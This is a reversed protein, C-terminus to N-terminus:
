NYYLPIAPSFCPPHIFNAPLIEMGTQSLKFLEKMELSSSILATIRFFRIAASMM